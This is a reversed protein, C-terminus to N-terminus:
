DRTVAGDYRERSERIAGRNDLVWQALRRFPEALSNGPETLSCEVQRPATDRVRRRVM